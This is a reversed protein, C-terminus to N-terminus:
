PPPMSSPRPGFQFMGDDFKKAEAATLSSNLQAVVNAHVFVYPALAPFQQFYAVIARENAETDFTM